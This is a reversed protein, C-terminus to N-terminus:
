GLARTALDRGPQIEKEMRQYTELVTMGLNLYMDLAGTLSDSDVGLGITPVGRQWYAAFLELMLARAIGKRRWARRTGVGRVWGGGPMVLGLATSVVQDGDLALYWLSPDFDARAFGRSWEEYTWATTGWHDAFSESLSAFVPQEDRGVQFNRVTIGPAWVPDEPPDTLTITMRNFRRVEAYGRREAWASATTDARVHGGIVVRADPPSDGLGARAREEALGLLASGLGVSRAGPAVTLDVRFDVGAHAEVAVFGQAEVTGPTEALWADRQLDIDVWDGLLDDVSSDPLHGEAIDAANLLDVVGRADAVTPRRVSFGPPLGSVPGTLGLRGV